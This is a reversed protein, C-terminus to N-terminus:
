KRATNLMLILEVKNRIRFSEPFCFCSLNYTKVPEHAHAHYCEYLSKYLSRPLITHWRGVLMLFIDTMSRRLNIVPLPDRSCLSLRNLYHGHPYLNPASRFLPFRIKCTGTGHAERHRGLGATGPVKHNRTRTRIKDKQAGDKISM